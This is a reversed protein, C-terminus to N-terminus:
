RPEWSPNDDDVDNKTVRHESKGRANMVFIEPEKV